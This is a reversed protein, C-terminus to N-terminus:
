NHLPGTMWCQKLPMHLQVMPRVMGQPVNRQLQDMEEGCHNMSSSYRAPKSTVTATPTHVKMLTNRALICHNKAICRSIDRTHQTVKQVVHSAGCQPTSNKVSRTITMPKTFTVSSLVHIYRLNFSCLGDSSDSGADVTCNKTDNASLTQVMSALLHLLFYSRSASLIITINLNQDAHFVQIQKFHSKSGCLLGYQM